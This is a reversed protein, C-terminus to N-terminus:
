SSSGILKKHILMCTQFQIFTFNCPANNTSNNSLDIILVVSVIISFIGIITSSLYILKKFKSNNYTLNLSYYIVTFIFFVFIFVMTNIFYPIVQKSVFTASFIPELIHQYFVRMSINFTFLFLSVSFYSVSNVLTLYLMQLKLFLQSDNKHDLFEDLQEKVKEFAFYSGNIWRKRQGLM